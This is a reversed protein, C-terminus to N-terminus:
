NVEIDYSKTFSKKEFYITQTPELHDCIHPYILNEQETLTIKM